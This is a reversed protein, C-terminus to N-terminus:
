LSKRKNSAAFVRMNLIPITSRNLNPERKYKLFKFIQEDYNNSWKLENTALHFIQMSKRTDFFFGYTVYWWIMCMMYIAENKHKNM